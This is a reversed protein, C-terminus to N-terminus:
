HDSRGVPRGSVGGVVAVVGAGTLWMVDAPGQVVDLPRLELGHVEVAGDLVVLFDADRVEVREGSIRLCAVEAATRGRQTMVNFNVTPASPEAWVKVDGSFAFPEFPREARAVEYTVGQGNKWPVRRHDARRLLKM